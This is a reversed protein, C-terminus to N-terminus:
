YESLKAQNFTADVAAETVINSIKNVVEGM